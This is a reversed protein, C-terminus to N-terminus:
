KVEQRRTEAGEMELREILDLARQLVARSEATEHVLEWLGELRVQEREFVGIVERLNSSHQNQIEQYGAKIQEIGRSIGERILFDGARYLGFLIALLVVFSPGKRLAGLLLQERFGRQEVLSM